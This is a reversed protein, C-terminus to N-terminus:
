DTGGDGTMGWDGMLGDGDFAIRARIPEGAGVARGVSEIDM